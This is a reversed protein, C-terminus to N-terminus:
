KKIVIKQGVYILNPNKINNDAVLKKVTTEYREAIKSLTDGKVVTYTVDESKETKSSKTILIKQGAYILDPNEIDNNAIIQKVTVGYKDAIKSLTDGSKVTYTTSSDTTLIHM